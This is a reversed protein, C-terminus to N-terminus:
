DHRDADLYAASCARFPCRVLKECILTYAFNFVHILASQIVMHIDM